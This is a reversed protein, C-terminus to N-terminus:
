QQVESPRMGISLRQFGYFLEFKHARIYEVSTEDVGVVLFRGKPTPRGNHFTRWYKTELGSNQAELRKFAAADEVPKGPLYLSIAVLTPLEDKTKICLKFGLHESIKPIQSKLWDITLSDACNMELVGKVVKTGLFGPRIETSSGEDLKELLSDKILIAEDYTLKIVVEIDNTKVILVQMSDKVAEVYSKRPAFDFKKVYKLPRSISPPTEGADRARKGNENTKEGQSLNLTDNENVMAQRARRARRRRASRSLGTKAVNLKELKASLDGVSKGDAGVEADRKVTDQKSTSPEAKKDEEELDSLNILKEPDGAERDNLIMDQDISSFDDLDDLEITPQMAAASEGFKPTSIKRSGNEM